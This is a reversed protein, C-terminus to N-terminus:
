QPHAILPNSPSPWRFHGGAALSDVSGFPPPSM